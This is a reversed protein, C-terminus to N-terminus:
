FGVKAENNVEEVIADERPSPGGSPLRLLNDGMIHEIVCEINTNIHSVLHRTKICTFEIDHNLEKPGEYIGIIEEEPVFCKQGTNDIWGIWEM